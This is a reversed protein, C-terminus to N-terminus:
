AGAKRFEVVWVFPNHAWSGPGNISEWLQKYGRVYKGAALKPFNPHAIPQAGEAKADAESIDNLREVRIGTVELTVRSASRPMFISPKWNHGEGKLWEEDAPTASARYHLNGPFHDPIDMFTERVWLRDGPQGYPCKFQYGDFGSVFWANGLEDITKFETAQCYDPKMIRRTQTKTGDLLARVMPGSFLIPRSKM